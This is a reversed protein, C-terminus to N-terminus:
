AFRLLSSHQDRITAGARESDRAAGAVGGASGTACWAEGDAALAARPTRPRLGQHLGALAALLVARAGEFPV